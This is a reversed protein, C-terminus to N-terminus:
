RVIFLSSTTAANVVPYTFDAYNGEAAGPFGLTTGVQFLYVHNPILLTDDIEVRPERTRFQRRREVVLTDLGNVSVEFLTLDFFDARGDATWTVLGIVVMPLWRRRRRGAAVSDAPGTRPTLDTM